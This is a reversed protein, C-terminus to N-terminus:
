HLAKLVVFDFANVIFYEDDAGVTYTQQTLVNVYTQVNPLVEKFAFWTLFANSGHYNFLCVLNESATYRVFGAVHVNHPYLWQINKADSFSDFKKRLAIIDKTAEFITHEITGKQQYLNNKNWDIIPRHMWRNDYSKGADQLYSYDNTYGVEDGYFLMPIGGLLLSHAQMLVIKQIAQQTLLSDKKELAYELGCLSALSGSIRADQTIPHVSFLAGKATSGAFTGSYYEKLFKRHNYPSFGAKYINEDDYALGIDDHCRTYTIWTCGNPKQLIDTQCHWMVQTNGTALVDWQLAMQTANYAIDCEKNRFNGEGFYKMIEKPAVIAEGLLAMGPAVIEVCLKLMQLLTHAQPLNQCTTGLQKWIFAPADIRLVDVGMNAYLLIIDLMANFVAPNTFNLDWQYTHFVTMVWKNMEPIYTFSGPASEPFVEPMTKEFADPMTRDHFCYYFDQYYADGEKAKQAWAHHHSTHNLVIDLMVYMNNKHLAKILDVLEQTTGFKEDVKRFDSVAYGGDSEQPPSQFLPMLHLYNVGLERLYALKSPMNALNGAFRDVYLSMGVLQNSTFWASQQAKEVDRKHLQTSRQTYQTAFTTLINQWEAEAQPHSGYIQTYLSHLTGLNALFRTFFPQHKSSIELGQAALLASAQTYIAQQYM